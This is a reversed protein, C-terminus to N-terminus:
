FIEFYWHPKMELWLLNSYSSFYPFYFNDNRKTGVWRTISFELFIAFFNLFNSSYWKTKMELLFLNLCAWFSPFYFNDSQEMGIRCTISFELFIPFFKLFNFFYRKPKMQFGFYAPFPRSLYFVFIITGNREKGFRLLFNM